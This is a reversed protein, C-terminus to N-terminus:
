GERPMQNVEDAHSDKKTSSNDHSRSPALFCFERCLRSQFLPSRFQTVGLVTQGALVIFITTYLRINKM